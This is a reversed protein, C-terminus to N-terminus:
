PSTTSKRHSYLVQILKLCWIVITPRSLRHCRPLDSSWPQGSFYACATRLVIKVAKEEEAREGILLPLCLSGRLVQAVSESFHKKCHTVEYEVLQSLFPKYTTYIAFDIASYTAAINYYIEIM